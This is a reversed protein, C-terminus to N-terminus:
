MLHGLHKWIVGVEKYSSPEDWNLGMDSGTYGRGRFRCQMVIKKTKKKFSRKFLFSTVFSIFFGTFTFKWSDAIQKYIRFVVVKIIHFNGDM